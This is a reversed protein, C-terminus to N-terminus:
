GQASCVGGRDRFGSTNERRSVRNSVINKGEVCGLERMGELFGDWMSSRDIGPPLAGVSVRDALVKRTQQARAALPVRMAGGVLAIFERRKM